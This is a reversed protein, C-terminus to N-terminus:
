WWSDYYVANGAEITKLADAVFDLDDNRMEEDYYLEGWFFGSKPELRWGRIDDELRHIDEKTLRLPVCNFSEKTGGKEYYLNEMWAHLANNKRWYKFEGHLKFDADENFRNFSFDDIVALPHVRYAYMDLGM